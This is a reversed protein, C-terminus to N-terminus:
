PKIWDLRRGQVGWFAEPDAVAAAYMSRYSADNVYARERWEAPVPILSDSM